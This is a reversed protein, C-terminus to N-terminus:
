PHYKVLRFSGMQGGEYAFGGLIEVRTPETTYPDHKGAWVSTVQEVAYQQFMELVRVGRGDYLTDAFFEGRWEPTVGPLTPNYYGKYTTGGNANPGIADFHVGCPCSGTVM